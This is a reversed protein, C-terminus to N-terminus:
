KKTKRHRRRKRGTKHTNAKNTPIASSVMTSNMTVVSTNVPKSKMTRTTIMKKKRPHRRKKSDNDVRAMMIIDQKSVYKEVENMIANTDYWYLNNSTSSVFLDLMQRMLSTRDQKHPISSGVLTIMSKYIGTMEIKENREGQPFITNKDNTSNNKNNSLIRDLLFMTIRIADGYYSKSTAEMCGELVNHYLLITPNNKGEKESV